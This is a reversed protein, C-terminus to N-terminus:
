KAKAPLGARVMRVSRAVAHFVIPLTALYLAVAAPVGIRGALATFPDPSPAGCLEVGWWGASSGVALYALVCALCKPFLAVLAGSAVISAADSCCRLASPRPASGEARERQDRRADVGREPALPRCEQAANM